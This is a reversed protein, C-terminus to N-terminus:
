SFDSKYYQRYWDVFYKLGDKLRIKPKVGTLAILPDIDAYTKYVDGPQMPLFTKKGEKGIINELIQIMDTLKEPNNHGINFINHGSLSTIKEVIGMIGDIIDDIYTFDRWMDGYNYIQIEQGKMIKDTFKFYAMDPRGMPGYVTFFRLGTIPLDYLDTYSHAILENAKKTAAYLSVPKDTKQTTSYPTEEARGYVSSSSAYIFHVPRVERVAELISMFGVLNSQTYADPNELSFRVGAQAALHIVIHPQYKKFIDLINKQDAIDQHFFHFNKYDKLFDLRKEKLSVDYYDNMNDIGIVTTGNNLLPKATYYGIFGAVGTVLIVKDHLNQKDFKLDM